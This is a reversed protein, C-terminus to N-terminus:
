RSASREAKPGKRGPVTTMWRHRGLESFGVVTFYLFGFAIVRHPQEVWLGSGPLRQQVVVEPTIGLRPLPLAITAFTFVLYCLASVAWTRQVFDREEGSPVQGILVGLTRNMTLGWFSVLPWWSKFALSFAGVFLTYFGGLALLGTAKGGRSAKGFM